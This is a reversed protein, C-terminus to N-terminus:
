VGDQCSNYFAEDTGLVLVRGQHLLSLGGDLDEEQCLEIVRVLEEKKKEEEGTVTIQTGPFSSDFSSCQMDTDQGEGDSGEDGKIPPPPKRFGTIVYTAHVCNPKRGNETGYFDYLM